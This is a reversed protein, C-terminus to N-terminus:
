LGGDFVTDALHRGNTAGVFPQAHAGLTLRSGILRGFVTDALHRGTTARRGPVFGVGYPPM